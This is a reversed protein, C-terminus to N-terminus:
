YDTTTATTNHNYYLLSNSSYETNSINVIAIEVPVISHYYLIVNSYLYSYTNIDRGRVRGM